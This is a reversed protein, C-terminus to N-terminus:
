CNTNTYIKTKIKKVIVPKAKLIKQLKNQKEIRDILIQNQKIKTHFKTIIGKITIKKDNEQNIKYKLRV